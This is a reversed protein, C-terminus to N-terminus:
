LAALCLRADADGVAGDGDVDFLPNFAEGGERSGWARALGELDELTFVTPGATASAPGHTAAAGRIDVDELQYFWTRGPEATRDLWAYSAGGTGTGRAPILQADLRTYPGQEAPARLVHFGAADVESGTTWALAVGGGAPRAALSALTVATSDLTIAIGGITYGTNVFPTPASGGARPMTVLNQGEGFVFASGVPRLATVMDFNYGGADLLNWSSGTKKLIGDGVQLSGSTTLFIAGDVLSFDWVWRNFLHDFTTGLAIPAGNAGSHDYTTEYVEGSASAWHIKANAPDVRVTYPRDQTVSTTTVVQSVAKTALNVAFIGKPNGQTFYLYGAAPDVSLGSPENGALSLFEFNNVGAAGAALNVNATYIWDTVTDIWYVSDRYVVMAAGEHAGTPKIWPDEVASAAPPAAQDDLVARGVAGTSFNTWFIYKTGVAQVPWALFVLLALRLASRLRPAMSRLIAPVPLVIPTNM